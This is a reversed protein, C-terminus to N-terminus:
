MPHHRSTFWRVKVPDTEPRISSFRDGVRIGQNSGKNIYVYDGRAFILKSNSQEGSILRIDDQMKEDSVFGACYVASFDPSTQAGVAQTSSVVQSPANGQASAGVAALLIGFCMTAANARMMM